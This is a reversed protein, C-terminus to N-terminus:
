PKQEEGSFLVELIEIIVNLADSARQGKMRSYETYCVHVPIEVYRLKLRAIEHIIESAHAMRNQTIKIQSAARASFARLGNHVDSLWIKETLGTFIIAIKLLMRRPWPINYASLRDERSSGVAAEKVSAVGPLFRSGLAVDALGAAIPAVLFPIDEALHQGDADFTVIIQAGEALAYQIGTALAAGQGLNVIHHLLHIPLRKETPPAKRNPESSSALNAVNKWTDDNSGDDVVVVQGGLEHIDRNSVVKQLIDQIVPGENYAPIIIFVSPRSFGSPVVEQQPYAGDRSVAVNERVTLGNHEHNM